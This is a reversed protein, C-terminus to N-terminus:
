KYEMTVIDRTTFIVCTYHLSYLMSVGKDDDQAMVSNQYLLALCMVALCIYRLSVYGFM